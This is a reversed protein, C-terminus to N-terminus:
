KANKHFVYNNPALAINNPYQDSGESSICVVKGSAYHIHTSTPLLVM